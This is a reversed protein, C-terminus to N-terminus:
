LATLGVHFAAEQKDLAQFAVLGNAAEAFYTQAMDIVRILITMRPAGMHMSCRTHM